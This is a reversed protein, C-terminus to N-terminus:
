WADRSTGALRQREQELLRQALGGGILFYVVLGHIVLGLGWGLAPYLAWHRGSTASLGALLLNVAIFAIAHIIWGLRMAARRRAQREIQDSHM